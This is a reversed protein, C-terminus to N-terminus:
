DEEEEENVQMMLEQGRDTNCWFGAMICDFNMMEEMSLGPYAAPMLRLVDADLLCADLPCPTASTIDKVFKSKCPFKCEVSSMDNLHDALKSGLRIREQKTNNSEGVVFLFQKWPYQGDPKQMMPTDGDAGKRNLIANVGVNEMVDENNELHRVHPGIFAEEEKNFKKVHAVVVGCQLGEVIVHNRVDKKGTLSIRSKFKGGNFASVPPKKSGNRSQPMKSKAKM